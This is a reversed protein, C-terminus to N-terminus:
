RQSGSPPAAGSASLAELLGSLGTQFLDALARSTADRAPEGAERERELKRMTRYRVTGLYTGGADVVPIAHVEQWGPHDAVARADTSADLRIVDRRMIEELRMSPKALMLERLNLVGVLRDDRDVVYLNYRANGASSRVRDIADAVTLDVPLALVEPDMLAGASGEPYRLLSRIARMRRGELAGLIRERAHPQGLRLYGAAVETPLRAVIRAAIPPELQSLIAAAPHATTRLLVRAAREVSLGGLFAAAEDPSLMELAAAAEDPHHDALDVALSRTLNM